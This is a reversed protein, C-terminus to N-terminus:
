KIIAVHLIDEDQFKKDCCVCEKLGDMGLNYGKRVKKFREFSGVNEMNPVRIDLEKTITHIRIM